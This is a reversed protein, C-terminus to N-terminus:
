GTPPILVVDSPQMTIKRQYFYTVVRGAPLKELKISALSKM